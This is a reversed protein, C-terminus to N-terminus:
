QLRAVRFDLPIRFHLAYPYESQRCQHQQRQLTTNKQGHFATVSVIWKEEIRVIDAVTGIKDLDTM